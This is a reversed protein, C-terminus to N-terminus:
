NERASESMRLRRSLWHLSVSVGSAKGGEAPARSVQAGSEGRSAGGRAAGFKGFSDVLTWGEPERFNVPAESFAFDRAVTGFGRAVVDRFLRDRNL